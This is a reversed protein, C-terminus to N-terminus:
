QWHRSNHLGSKETIEDATMADMSEQNKKYRLVAAGCVEGENMM